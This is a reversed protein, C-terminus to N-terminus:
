YLRAQGSQEGLRLGFQLMERVAAPTGIVQSQMFKHPRPSEAHEPRAAPRARLRARKFASVQKSTCASGVWCSDETGLVIQEGAGRTLADVRGVIEALPLPNVVVDFADSLVVLEAARNLLLYENLVVDKCRFFKRHDKPFQSLWDSGCATLHERCFPPAAGALVPRWRFSSPPALTLWVHTAELCALAGGGGPPPM